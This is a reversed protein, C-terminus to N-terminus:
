ALPHAVLLTRFNWPFFVMGPIGSNRSDNRPIGNWMGFGGGLFFIRLMNFSQDKFPTELDTKSLTRRCSNLVSYACELVNRCMGARL